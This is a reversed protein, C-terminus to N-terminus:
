ITLSCVVANAYASGTTLTNNVQNTAKNLHGQGLYFFRYGCELPAQGFFQNFRLGAGVTASFTPTTRNSYITDPLTNSGLSAEKFDNTKMFNPGIGVDLTM